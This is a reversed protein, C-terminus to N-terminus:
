CLSLSTRETASRTSKDLNDGNLSTISGIVNFSYVSYGETAQRIILISGVQRYNAYVSMGFFLQVRSHLFRRDVFRLVVCYVIFICNLIGWKCNVVMVKM